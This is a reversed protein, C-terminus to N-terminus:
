GIKKPSQNNNNCNRRNQMQKIQKLKAAKQNAALLMKLAAM